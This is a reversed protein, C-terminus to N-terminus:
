QFIGIMNKSIKTRWFELHPLCATNNRSNREEKRYNDCKKKLQPKKPPKKKKKSASKKIGRLEQGQMQTKLKGRLWTLAQEQDAKEKREM